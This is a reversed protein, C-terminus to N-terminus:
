IRYNRHFIKLWKIDEINILDDQFSHTEHVLQNRIWRMKKLEKYDREWCDVMIHGQIDHSMENIYESIGSESSLIQKCLEDLSKYADLFELIINNM